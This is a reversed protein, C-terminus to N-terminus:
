ACMQDPDKHNSMVKCLPFWSLVYVSEIRSLLFALTHINVFYKCLYIQCEKNIERFVRYALCSKYSGTQPLAFWDEDSFPDDSFPSTPCM